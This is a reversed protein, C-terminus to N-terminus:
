LRLDTGNTSVTSVPLGFAAVLKMCLFENEVSQSLDIGGPLKGIQPKIIHTTATAGEPKHWKGKWYLLATKEQAGALSIRFGKETDIGLPRETLNALLQSIDKPSLPTGSVHGAPGPELDDPLFQLAGICDRGIASLLSHADRGGAGSREALRRRIDDNDPLLNDFVNNVVAGSYRDERLPLSLSVPIAHPWSLWDLDYQFSVAGSAQRTLQGLHRSNLYVQLPAYTRRRAM